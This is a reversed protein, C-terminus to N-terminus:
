YGVEVIEAARGEEALRIRDLLDLRPDRAPAEAVRSGPRIGRRPNSYRVANHGAVHQGHNNNPRIDQGTREVAEVSTRPQLTGVTSTDCSCLMAAAAVTITTVLTTKM